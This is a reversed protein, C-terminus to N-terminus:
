VKWDLLIFYAILITYGIQVQLDEKIIKKVINFTFSLVIQFITPTHFQCMTGVYFEVQLQFQIARSRCLVRVM